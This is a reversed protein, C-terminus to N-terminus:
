TAGLDHSDRGGGAAQLEGCCLSDRFGGPQGPKRDGRRRFGFASLGFVGAAGGWM